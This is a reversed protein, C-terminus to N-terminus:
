IATYLSAMRRRPNRVRAFDRHTFDIKNYIFPHNQALRVPRRGKKVQQLKGAAACLGCHVPRTVVNLVRRSEPMRGDSM